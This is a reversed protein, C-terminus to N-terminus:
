GTGMIVFEFNGEGCSSQLTALIQRIQRESDNPGSIFMPRGDKGFAIEEDTAAADIRGFIRKAKHYDSHPPFGLSEAYQVAGEVIKRAFEPALDIRNGTGYLRKLIGGDYESKGVVRWIANKVGLCYRDILFLAVAVKGDPLRRSLLVHGMGSGWLADVTCCDVIPADSLAAPNTAVQRAQRHALARKKEKAKRRQQQKQRKQESLAM